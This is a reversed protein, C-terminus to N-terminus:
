YYRQQPMQQPQRPRNAAKVIAVIIGIILAIFAVMGLLVVIVVVAVMSSVQGRGATTLTKNGFQDQKFGWTANCRPCSTGTSEAKTLKAGCKSCEFFEEFQISPGSPISPMEPGSGFNSSAMRDAGPMGGVGPMGPMSGAGPMGPMEGRGPMGPMSGAGPLGPTTGAGPMGAMGPMAGAGPMGPMAGAGPMGPTAGAGPMGAMAGAGPVGPMGPMAGAGPMGPMGPMAGAGPMGPAGAMGPAGPLGPGMGGGPPTIGPAMGGGMGGRGGRGRGMGGAAGPMGPGRGVNPAGGVPPGEGGGGGSTDSPIESEKGQSILLERVYEQDGDSLNEFPVTIVRTGRNLVVNNGDMRVFKGSSKVGFRDTWTRTQIAIPKKSKAPREAGKEPKEPPTNGEAAPSDSRDQEPDKGASIDKIVQQDKESLKEVRIVILKGDKLFTADGDLERVFEAEMTRGDASTWTRVKGAAIAISAWAIVLLITTIRRFM